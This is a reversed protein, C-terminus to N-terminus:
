RKVILKEGLVPRMIKEFDDFKEKMLTSLPVPKGTTRKIKMFEAKKFRKEKVAELSTMESYSIIKTNEDSVLEKIEKQKMKKKKSREYISRIYGGTLAQFLGGRVVGIILRRDTFFLLYKEGGWRAETTFLVSEVASTSETTVPAGCKPCFTSGSPIEHGCKVCFPLCMVLFLHYM